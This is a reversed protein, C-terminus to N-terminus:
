RFRLSVFGYAADFEYLGLAYIGAIRVRRTRPIMGMPSLTGQPTLLTASDGVTLGLQEALNRGILVGPLEDETAPHLGDLSGQLMARQIDTVNPELEPDVGKLSIFADAQPSSILAEALSRLAPM